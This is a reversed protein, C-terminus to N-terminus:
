LIYTGTVILNTCISIRSKDRISATQQPKLLLTYKDLVSYAPEISPTLVSIWGQLKSCM